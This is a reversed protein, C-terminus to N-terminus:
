LSKELMVLLFKFVILRMLHGNILFLRLLFILFSKYILYFLIILYFKLFKFRAYNFFKLLLYFNTTMQLM